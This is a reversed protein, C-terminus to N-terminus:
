AAAPPPWDDGDTQRKRWFWLAGGLAAAAAVIASVNPRWSGEVTGPVASRAKKKIVRKGVQWALWGLAANRRNIIGM